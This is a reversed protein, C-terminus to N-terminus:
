FNFGLSRSFLRKCLLSGRVALNLHENLNVPRVTKSVWHEAEPSLLVSLLLVNWRISEWVVGDFDLFIRKAKLKEELINIQKAKINEVMLFMESDNKNWLNM